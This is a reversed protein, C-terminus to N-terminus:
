KGFRAITFNLLLEVQDARTRVNASWPDESWRTYRVSPAFSLRRWQVEMGAGGSVGSHSPNSLNLNGTARFSPGGELFPRAWGLAFRYKALVPFQWTVVTAPAFGVVAGDRFSASQKYHLPKYLANLGVSLRRSIHFEVSPGVVYGGADSEVIDPNFGPTPIYHSIFDRNAYGGVVVGFSVRQASVDPALLSLGIIAASVSLVHSNRCAVTITYVLM